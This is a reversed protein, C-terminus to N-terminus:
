NQNSLYPNRELWKSRLWHAVETGLNLHLQVESESLPRWRGGSSCFELEGGENLRYENHSGQSFNLRLTSLYVM